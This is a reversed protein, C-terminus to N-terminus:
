ETAARTTLRELAKTMAGFAEDAGDVNRRDRLTRPDEYAIRTQGGDDYILVRLPLDLGATPAAAIIPTGIAPNGFIVVQMDDLEADISRAGEAHDVRAFVTAGAGEAAAVLRDATEPVSFASDRQVLDQANATLVMAALAAGAFLIKM